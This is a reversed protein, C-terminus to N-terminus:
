KMFSHKLSAKGNRTLRKRGWCHSGLWVGTKVPLAPGRGGPDQSSPAVGLGRLLGSTVLAAVEKEPHGEALRSADSVPKRWRERCGEPFAAGRWRVLQGLVGPGEGSEAWGRSGPCVRRSTLLCM